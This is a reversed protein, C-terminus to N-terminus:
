DNAKKNYDNKPKRLIYSVLLAIAFITAIQLLIAELKFTYIDTSSYAIFVQTLINLVFFIIFYTWFTKMISKRIYYNTTNYNTIIKLLVFFSIFM